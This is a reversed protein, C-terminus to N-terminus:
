EQMLFIDTYKYYCPPEESFRTWRHKKFWEEFRPNLVNEVFIVDFDRLDHEQVQRIFTKWGGQGRSEERFEITAIEFTPRFRGNIYRRGKRLYVKGHPVKVWTRTDPSSLFESLTM